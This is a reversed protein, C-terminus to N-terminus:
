LEGLIETHQQAAGCGGGAAVRKPPSNFGKRGRAVVQLAQRGVSSCSPVLNAPLHTFAAARAPISGHWSVGM